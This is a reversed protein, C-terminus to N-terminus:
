VNSRGRACNWEARGRGTLYRAESIYGATMCFQLKYYFRRKGDISVLWRILDTLIGRLLYRPVGFVFKTEAPWGECRIAARGFKFYWSQYYSRRVRAAEVPHFVVANPAYVFREGASVMRRCIETDEGAALGRAGPGLDERFLGYKEFAAKRLAMNAGYPVTKMDLEVEDDGLDFKVIAAMLGWPGGEELWEPKPASWVPVIRGGVGICERTEFAKCISELWGAGVEADDDTFALVKGRACRIGSNLAFSKGQRKEFLYHVDLGSDRTFTATVDATNDNSNNDVVIVEWTARTPSEMAALSRLTRLLSEARNYTAIVVSAFPGGGVTSRLELGGKNMMADSGRGDPEASGSLTASVMELQDTDARGEGVM